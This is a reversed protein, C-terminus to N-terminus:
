DPRNVSTASQYLLKRRKQHTEGRIADLNQHLLIEAFESNTIGELGLAEKWQNWLLFTSQRLNLRKVAKTRRQRGKSPRTTAM